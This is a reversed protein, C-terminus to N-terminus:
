LFSFPTPFLHCRFVPRFLRVATSSAPCYKCGLLSGCYCLHASCYELLLEHVELLISDCVDGACGCARACSRRCCVQVAGKYCSRCRCTWFIGYRACNQQYSWKKNWRAYLCHHKEKRTLLLPSILLSCCTRAGAVSRFLADQYEGLPFTSLTYLSVATPTSCMYM